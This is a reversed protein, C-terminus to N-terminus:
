KGWRGLVRDIITDVYEEGHQRYLSHTMRYFPDKFLQLLAERGFGMRVYEEVLADVMEETGSSPMSVGVLEMPDEPDWEDKPM